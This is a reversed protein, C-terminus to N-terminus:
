TFFTALNNNECISRQISITTNKMEINNLHTTTKSTNYTNQFWNEASM